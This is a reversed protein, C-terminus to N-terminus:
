FDFDFINVKSDDNDPHFELFQEMIEGHREPGEWKCIAEYGKRDNDPKWLSYYCCLHKGEKPQEPNTYSFPCWFCLPSPKPQYQSTGIGTLIKEIKKLGRKIFGKTGAEQRLNGCLPLNYYCRTPYDDLGKMEKLACSYIVFQLPTVLDKDAFPHGKTKIDEIIYENTDKDFLLRDIFGSFVAGAINTEFYVEVGVISLNPHEKLYEELQYIGKDRFELAKTFYSSGMEDTKYFEERYKNRLIEVGYIGGERDMPSTKPINMEMFDKKYKEYDIPTGNMIDISILELIKHILTGLETALSESYIYHKDVYTLKYRWSCNDYTNLRSYSYKTVYKAM